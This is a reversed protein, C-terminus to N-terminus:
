GIETWQPGFENKAVRPMGCHTQGQIFWYPIKKTRVEWVVKLCAGFFEGCQFYQICFLLSGVLLWISHASLEIIMRNEVRQSRSIVTRGLAGVKRSLTSLLVHSGSSTSDLIHLDKFTVLRWRKGELSPSDVQFCGVMGWLLWELCRGMKLLRCGSM